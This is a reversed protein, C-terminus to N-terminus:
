RNTKKRIRANVWIIVLIKSNRHKSRFSKLKIRLLKMDSDNTDWDEDLYKNNPWLKLFHSIFNSIAFVLLFLFIIILM